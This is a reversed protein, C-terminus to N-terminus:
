DGCRQLRFKGEMLGDWFPKTDAAPEPVLKDYSM